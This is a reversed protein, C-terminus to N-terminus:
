RMSEAIELARERTLDGELRLTLDGRTWLLTNGALRLTEFIPEGDRDLYVFEHPEGALWYGREGGVVVSQIRTEPGASKRIFDPDLIGPFQTLLLSIEEGDRYVFGIQGGETQYTLYVDDPSELEGPVLVRYDVRRRVEDFDVREGLGLDIPEAPATPTTPVREIKAGRIGLWELIATRSQPVAMLAGVTVALLAFGLVLARRAPFARRAPEAALRRRVGATLDPTPPFEIIPALARLEQELTAEPM